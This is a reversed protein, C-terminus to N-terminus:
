KKDHTVFDLNDWLPTLVKRKGEDTRAKMAHAYVTQLTESDSVWGGLAQVDKMTAGEALLASAFYHRLKHISFQPIGLKKETRLLYNSISQPSGNYIYGQAKIREVIAPPLPVERTSSATKTTKVIWEGTSDQVLAKNVHLMTGEIDSLELACIESRRLGSSALFLAVYFHPAHEKTYELIQKVDENTPIYPENKVKQPLTTNIVLESRFTGFVAFIFGHLTRVTKPSHTQSLENVLKQIDTAKITYFDKSTFWSPLRNIILRYERVTRPSLVNEKLTIYDEASDKFTKRDHKTRYNLKENILQLAEKQTPKYPVTVAYSVGNFMKRIRYSGSPLQEIRM